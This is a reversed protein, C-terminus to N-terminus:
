RNGGKKHGSIGNFDVLGETRIANRLRLLGRKLSAVRRMGSRVTLLQTRQSSSKRCCNSEISDLTTWALGLETSSKCSPRGM